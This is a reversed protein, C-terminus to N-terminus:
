KRGRKKTEKKRRKFAQAPQAPEPQREPEPGKGLWAKMSDAMVQLAAWKGKKEM